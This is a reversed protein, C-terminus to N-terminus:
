AVPEVPNLKCLRAKNYRRARYSDPKLGEFWDKPFEEHTIKVGEKPHKIGPKGGRPTATCTANKSLL